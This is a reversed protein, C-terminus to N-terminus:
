LLELMEEKNGYKLSNFAMKAGSGLLNMVLDM